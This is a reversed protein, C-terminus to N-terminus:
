PVAIEIGTLYADLEPLYEFCSGSVVMLGGPIEKWATVEYVSDNYILNAVTYGNAGEVVEDSLWREEEKSLQVQAQFDALMDSGTYEPVPIYSVSVAYDDTMVSLFEPESMLATNGEPLVIRIATQGMNMLFSGDAQPPNTLELEEDGWDELDGMLEDETVANDIADQPVAPVAVDEYRMQKMSVVCKPVDVTMEASEDGALAGLLGGLLESLVEGMGQIELDIQVPRFTAADVRYVTKITMASLDMDELGSLDLDAMEAPAADLVTGVGDQVYSGDLTVTLVYCSKGDVTEQEEALVMKEAPIDSLKLVVGLLNEQQTKMAALDEEAKLWMESEADYAYSILKDGEMAMYTELRVEETMGMAEVTMTGATYSASMDMKYQMDMDMALGMDMTMGPMGLSFDLEMGMKAALDTLNQNAEDMKKALTVADMPKEGCGAMLGLVMVLVLALAVIKKM